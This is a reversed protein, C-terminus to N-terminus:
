AQSVEESLGCKNLKNHGVCDYQDQVCFSSAEPELGCLAKKM